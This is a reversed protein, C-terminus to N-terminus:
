RRILKLQCVGQTVDPITYKAIRLPDKGITNAAKMRLCVYLDITGIITTIFIIFQQGKASTRIEIFTNFRGEKSEWYVNLCFSVTFLELTREM